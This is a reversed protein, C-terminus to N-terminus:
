GGFHRRAGELKRIVTGDVVEDGIQVRIGGVVQPDLVVNLHVPKGYIRTLVAALRERQAPDLDIASTVTAALQQRRTAIIRLYGAIVRDFRRGRPALVAQRALRVSEPAAKGDLLAAVVAAKATADARRDTVAERLEPSGAVIREFRFLEDEVRDIRGAREAGVALAQVAHEEITDTLDRETSWRQGALVAVLTVATDSVRGALLHRVLQGKAGAERSPDSLARRLTASSDLAAGIGFLDEALSAAERRGGLPGSGALASDLAKQGHAAAARSSGQM